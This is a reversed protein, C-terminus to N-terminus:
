SFPNLLDLDKVKRGFKVTYAKQKRREEKYENLLDKLEICKQDYEESSCTRLIRKFIIGLVCSTGFHELIHRHCFYQTMNFKSCVSKISSGMDSLVRKGFFNIQHQYLEFNASIIIRVRLKHFISIEFPISQNYFIGKAICFTYPKIARFAEDLELYHFFGYTKLGM